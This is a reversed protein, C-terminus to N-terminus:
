IFFNSYAVVTKKSPANEFFGGGSTVMKTEMIKIYKKWYEMVWYEFEDYTLFGKFMAYWFWDIEWKGGGGGWGGNGHGQQSGWWFRWIKWKTDLTEYRNWRSMEM